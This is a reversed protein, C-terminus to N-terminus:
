APLGVADQEAVRGDVAAGGSVIVMGGAAVQGHPETFIVAAGPRDAAGDAFAGGAVRRESDGLLTRDETGIFRQGVFAEAAGDHEGAEVQLPQISWAQAEGLCRKSFM